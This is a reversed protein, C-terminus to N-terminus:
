CNRKWVYVGLKGNIEVTKDYWIRTQNVATDQWALLYKSKEMSDCGLLQNLIIKIPFQSPFLARSVYYYHGQWSSILGLFLM